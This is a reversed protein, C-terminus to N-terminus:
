PKCNRLPSLLLRRQSELGPTPQKKHSILGKNGRERRNQQATSSLMTEM